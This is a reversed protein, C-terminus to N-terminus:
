NGGAPLQISFAAGKGQNVARIRGGHAEIIRKCISLGLGTGTVKNTVFPEFLRAAIDPPVGAGTDAVTLTVQKHKAAGSRQKGNRRSDGSSQDEVSVSMEGGGPMADLANLMLNLLVQRLQEKDAYILVPLSPMRGGVYVGQSSARGAILQQSEDVITRLDFLSKQPMAPRAYDLLRNVAIELRNIETSVVALEEAPLHRGDQVATGVLLKVPMLANRL